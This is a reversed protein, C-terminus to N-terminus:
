DGGWLLLPGSDQVGRWALALAMVCDDHMGDPASYRFSGGPLREMEYAQLEGILVPDNLIEIEGREFALALADIAVAKTSNTTLFPQVPLGERQLLEILPEGMSNQEAIIVTPRWLESLAKLRGVQVVYDIRNFRDFYVLRKARLDLVTIVTWDNQKGFDVGCIYEAGDTPKDRWEAVAAEVVKRFVAGADEIFEAMYEQRFFLEPMSRQAEDIESQPIYPNSATPFWWSQWGEEGAQGRQWIRWFWNRGKPTSIFIAKGQRDSLAPRLAATWAEERIFACEDLVVLDLGEGRLSDPNDASRVQVWGGTPYTIRRETESKDIRPISKSLHKIARWGISAIPFTPAVWWARGGRLACAVCSLAGLMTKGWRRGCSLVKFRADNDWVEREGPHLAPLEAHIEIAM